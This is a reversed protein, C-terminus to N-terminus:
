KSNQAVDSPLFKYRSTSYVISSVNLCICGKVISNRRRILGTKIGILGTDGPTM